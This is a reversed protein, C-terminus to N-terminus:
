SVDDGFPIDDDEEDDEIEADDEDVVANLIVGFGTKYKQITASVSSGAWGLIDEGLDTSLNRGNTANVKFAKDLEEVHMLWVRDEDFEVLEMETVRFTKGNIKKRNAQLDEGKFYDCASAFEESALYEPQKKAANENKATGKKKTVAM